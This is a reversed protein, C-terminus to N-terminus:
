DNLVDVPCSWPVGPAPATPVCLPIRIETLSPASAAVSPGNEIVTCAASGCFRAGVIQPLGGAVTTCPEGYTNSGPADSGSPSASVNETSFRGDHALKLADVPRTDPVGDPPSTPVYGFMRM